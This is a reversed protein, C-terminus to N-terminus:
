EIEQSIVPMECMKNINSNNWQLPSYVYINELKWMMESMFSIGVDVAWTKWTIFIFNRCVRDYLLKRKNIVVIKNMDKLLRETRDNNHRNGCEQVNTGRM